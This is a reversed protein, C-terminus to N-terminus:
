EPKAGSAKVVKAWKKIETKIYAGFAEPTSGVLEFGVNNFRDRIDPLQLARVMEDHLRTVIPKPTGAPALVGYWATAEFGPFGSEAITPVEPVAPSRRAGTVALPRLKGVKIHPTVSLMGSVMVQVQGALLDIVAQSSGKYAVHQMDIGAAANLLAGTLHGISAVSASAYNIKKPNAKAYAILDQFSKAPVSPHAVLINPSTALQTIPAYDKVPDFPLRAYLSPGIGLNAIYGLVITHGDPAARAVIEMGINGGAGSRNDVVVQQGLSESLKQGTTRALTDASGGPAFPVIYRIPRNPYSQALGQTCYLAAMCAMAAAVWWRREM